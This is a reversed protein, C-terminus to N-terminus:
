ACELNQVFDQLEHIFILLEMETMMLELLILSPASFCFYGHELDCYSRTDIHLREAMTAQTYKREVRVRHVTKSLMPQFLKTYAHM